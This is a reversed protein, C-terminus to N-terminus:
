AIAMLRDTDSAYRDDQVFLYKVYKDYMEDWKEDDDDIDPWIPRKDETAM